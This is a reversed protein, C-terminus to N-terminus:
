RTPSEVFAQQLQREQSRRGVIICPVREGPVRTSPDSLTTVNGARLDGYAIQMHFGDIIRLALDQYASAFFNAVIHDYFQAFHKHMLNNFSHGGYSVLLAQVSLTISDRSEVNCIGSYYLVPSQPLHQNAQLAAAELQNSHHVQEKETACLKLVFSEGVLYVDRSGGRGEYMARHEGDCPLILGSSYLTATDTLEQILSSNGPQQRGSNAKLYLIQQTPLSARRGHCVLRLSM